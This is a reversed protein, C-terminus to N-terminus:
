VTATCCVNPRQEKGAIGLGAALSSSSLSPRRCSNRRTGAQLSLRRRRDGPQQESDHAHGHHRHRSQGWLPIQSLKPAGVDVTQQQELPDDPVAEILHRTMKATAHLFRPVAFDEPDNGWPDSIAQGIEILGITTITMISFALCPLFFGGLYDAEPHFRVGKAVALGFLYGSAGFSVLHSYAFPIV